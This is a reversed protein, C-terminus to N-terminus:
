MGQPSRNWLKDLWRVLPGAVLMAATAAAGDVWSLDLRDKHIGLAGALIVIGGVFVAALLVSLLVSLLSVLARKQLAVAEANEKNAERWKATVRQAEVLLEGDPLKELVAKFANEFDGAILLEIFRKADSATMSLIAGGYADVWPLLEVPVKGKLEDLTM